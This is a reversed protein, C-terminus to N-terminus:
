KGGMAEQWKQETSKDFTQVTLVKDTSDLSVFVPNSFSDSTVPTFTVSLNDIDTNFKVYGLLCDDFHLAYNNGGVHPHIKTILFEEVKGPVKGTFRTIVETVVAMEAEMFKCTIDM